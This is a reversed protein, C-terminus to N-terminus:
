FDYRLWFTAYENNYRSNGSNRSELMVRTSLRESLKARYILNNVTIDSNALIGPDLDIRTHGLILSHQPLGYPALDVTTTLRTLRSRAIASASDGEAFLYPMLVFEPYGGWNGYATVTHEDGGFRTMALAVSVGSPTHALTTKVGTLDYRANLGQQALYTKFSGSAGVRYHQGELKLGLSPTLSWQRRGEVYVTDLTNIGHYLWLRFQDRNGRELGAVWVGHHGVARSPDLTDGSRADLRLADNVKLSTYTQQAMSRFHSYTVLGDLGSMKNVYALTATTDAEPRWQFTAAEFLNPIIRYEYSNIIPSFFEQRGLTLRYPGQQWKLQAEGLLTYPRKDLDFLYADTRRPDAHRTGLDQTTYAAAQLRWGQWDGTSVGLRGGVGLSSQDPRGGKKDDVITMLKAFGSWQSDALAALPTDAAQASLATGLLLLIGYRM